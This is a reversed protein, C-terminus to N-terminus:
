QKVHLATHGVLAMPKGTFVLGSFIAVISRERLFSSRVERTLTKATGKKRSDGAEWLAESFSIRGGPERGSSFNRFFHILHPSHM